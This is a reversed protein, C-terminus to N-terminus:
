DEGYIDNINELLPAVRFADILAADVMGGSLMRAKNKIYRRNTIDVVLYASALTSFPIAPEVVSSDVRHPALVRVMKASHPALFLLGVELLTEM